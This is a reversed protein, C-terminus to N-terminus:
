KEKKVSSHCPIKVTFTTGIGQESKFSIEGSHEEVITKCVSLGLGTGNQKSTYFDSFINQHNKEEIGHGADNVEIIAFQSDEITKKLSRIKVIDGKNSAEISNTVLNVIVQLLKNRNFTFHPLEMLLEHKLVVSKTEALPRMISLSSLIVENISYIDDHSQARRTFELVNDVLGAIRLVAEKCSQVSEAMDPALKDEEMALYDINLRLASLPNRIEHVLGAALKGLILLKNNQIEDQM